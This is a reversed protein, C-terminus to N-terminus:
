LVGDIRGCLVKLDRKIESAVEKRTMKNVPKILRVILRLSVDRRLKIKRLEAYILRKVYNRRVARTAHKKSATVGAEL